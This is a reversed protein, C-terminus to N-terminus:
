LIAELIVLYVIPLIGMALDRLFLLLLTSTKTNAIQEFEKQLKSDISDSIKGAGAKGVEIAAGMAISSLLGAPTIKRAAIIRGLWVKGSRKAISTTPSQEGEKTDKGSVRRLWKRVGLGADAVKRLKNIDHKLVAKIMRRIRLVRYIDAIVWLTLGIILLLYGLFTVESWEQWGLPNLFLRLFFVLLPPIVFAFIENAILLGFGRIPLEKLKQFAWKRHPAFKNVFALFPKTLLLFRLLLPIWIIFLIYTEWPGAPPFSPFSIPSASMKTLEGM